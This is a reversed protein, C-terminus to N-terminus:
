NGLSTLDTTPWDPASIEIAGPDDTFEAARMSVANGEYTGEYSLLMDDGICVNGTTQPSTFTFCDAAIGAITEGEVEEISMGPANAIQSAIDGADILTPLQMPISQGAKAKICAQEGDSDSCFYLFEDLTVILYSGATGDITGQMGVLSNPPESTLTFAGDITASQVEFVVHFTQESLTAAAARIRALGAGSGSADGSDDSDDDDRNDPSGSPATATESEQGGDASTATPEDSGGGNAADDDDGGGCGASVAFIALVLVVIWFYTQHRTM